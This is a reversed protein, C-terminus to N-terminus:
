FQTALQPSTSTGWLLIFMQTSLWVEQVKYYITLCSGDTVGRGHVYPMPKNLFVFFRVSLVWVSCLTAPVPLYIGQGM